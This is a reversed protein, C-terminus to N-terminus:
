RQAKGRGILIRQERRVFEVDVPDDVARQLAAAIPKAGRRAGSVGGRGRAM